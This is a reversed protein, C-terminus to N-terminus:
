SISNPQTHSQMMQLSLLSCTHHHLFHQLANRQGLPGQYTGLPMPVLWTGEVGSCKNDKNHPTECQGHADSGVKAFFGTNNAVPVTHLHIFPIQIAYHYYSKNRM